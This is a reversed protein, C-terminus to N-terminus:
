GGAFDRSLADTDLAGFLAYIEAQIQAARMRASTGSMAAVDRRLGAELVAEMSGTGGALSAEAASVREASVRQEQAITGVVRRAQDLADMLAVYRSRAQERAQDIRLKAIEVQHQAVRLQSRRTGGEYISWNVEVGVDVSAVTSGGGFLSGKSQSYESELKLNATPRFRAQVEALQREAVALEAKAIQIGPNLSELAELSFTGSMSRPDALAFGGDGRVGGVEIGTFRHLEFLAEALAAEADAVSTAASFVDSEARLQQGVDARGSAVMEALDREFQTRVQFVRQAERVRNQAQAVQLFAAVLERNVNILEAEARAAALAEEAQALPLKRFRVPDYLPQTVALTVTAVPYNSRGEQFTKNDQSLINQQTQTYELNLSVRPRREGRAQVVGEAAIQKELGIIERTVDTAEALAVAEALTVQRTGGEQATAAVPGTAVLLGIGVYRLFRMFKAPNAFEPDTKCQYM